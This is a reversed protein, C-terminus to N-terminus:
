FDNKGSTTHEHAKTKFTPAVHVIIQMKASLTNFTCLKWYNFLLSSCLVHVRNAMFYTEYIHMNADVWHQIEDEM